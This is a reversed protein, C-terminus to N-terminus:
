VDELDVLIVDIGFRKIREWPITEQNIKGLLKFIFSSNNVSIARIQGTETDFELDQVPGLRKGNNVNVVELLKLDSTNTLM